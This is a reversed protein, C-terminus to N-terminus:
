YKINKYGCYPCEVYGYENSGDEWPAHYDGRALSQGCSECEGQNGSPNSSRENLEDEIQDMVEELAALTEMDDNDRATWCMQRVKEKETELEDDSASKIWFESYGM